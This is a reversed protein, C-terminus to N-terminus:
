WPKMSSKTMLYKQPARPRISQETGTKTLNGPWTATFMPSLVSVNTVLLRISSEAESAKPRMMNEYLSIM